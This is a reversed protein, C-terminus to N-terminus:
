TCPNCGQWWGVNVGTNAFCGAVQVSMYVCKAQSWETANTLLADPLVRTPGSRCALNSQLRRLRWQTPLLTRPRALSPQPHAESIDSPTLDKTYAAYYSVSSSGRIRRRTWCPRHYHAQGHQFIILWSCMSSQSTRSFLVNLSLSNFFLYVFAVGGHTCVSSHHSNTSIKRM